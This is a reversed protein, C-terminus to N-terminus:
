IRRLCSYGSIASAIAPSKFGQKKTVRNESTGQTKSTESKWNNLHQGHQERGTCSLLIREESKKRKKDVHLITLKFHLSLHRYGAWDVLTRNWVIWYWCPRLSYLCNSHRSNMAIPLATSHARFQAHMYLHGSCCTQPGTLAWVARKAYHAPM